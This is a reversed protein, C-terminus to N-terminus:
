ASSPMRSLDLHSSNLRTSKRDLAIGGRLVSTTARYTYENVGIVVAAVVIAVEFAYRRGFLRAFLRRLM